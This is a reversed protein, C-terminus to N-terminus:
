STKKNQPDGKEIPNEPYSIWDSWSGAYLKVDQWGAEKLALVNPTATVGSGCYVIVEKDKPIESFQEQILDCKLFKGDERVDKWFYHHASPIHGAISDIPESEGTYRIKERSDILITESHFLKQRVEKMSIYMNEQVNPVFRAAHREALTNTLPYGSKKWDSFNGNMVSVKEHGLYTLIWWLRSAMAGDQDDYAIVHTNDDIGANSLKGSLVHISPLPHRGGHKQVPSSLDQELDLYISGPIYEKNEKKVESHKKGLVFRCDVFLIKPDNLHENVWEMSVIHSRM